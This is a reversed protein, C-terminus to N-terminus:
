KKALNSILEFTSQVSSSTATANAALDRAVKLAMSKTKELKQRVVPDTVNGTQLLGDIERAEALAEQAIERQRRVSETLQTINKEMEVM